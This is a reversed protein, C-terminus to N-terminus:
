VISNMKVPVEVSIFYIYREETYTLLRILMLVAYLLM